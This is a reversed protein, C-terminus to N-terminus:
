TEPQALPQARAAAADIVSTAVPWPKSRIRQPVVRSLGTRRPNLRSAIRASGAESNPPRQHQMGVLSVTRRDVPLREGDNAGLRFKRAECIFLLRHDHAHDM